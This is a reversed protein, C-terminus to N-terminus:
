VDYLGSLIKLCIGIWLFTIMPLLKRKRKYLIFLLGVLSGFFLIELGGFFGFAIGLAFVFVLDGDGLAERKLATRIVVQLIALLGVLAFAECLIDFFDLVFSSIFFSCFAEIVLLYNLWAPVALYKADYIALIFAIYLFSCLWIGFLNPYSYLPIFGIPIFFFNLLFFERNNKYLFFSSLVFIVFFVFSEKFGFDFFFYQPALGSFM